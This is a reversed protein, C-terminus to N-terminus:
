LRLFAGTGNLNPLAKSSRDLLPRPLDYKRANELDGTRAFAFPQMTAASEFDDERQAVLYESAEVEAEGAEEIVNGGVSAVAVGALLLFLSWAITFRAFQHLVNIM